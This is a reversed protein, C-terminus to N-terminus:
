EQNRSFFGALRTLDYGTPEQAVRLDFESIIALLHDFIDAQIAEYNGWDIDNSFVYIEMPLGKITPHLQRILILMDQHVKPHHRLYAEIYARFTGLNTMRRGNALVSTDIQNQDNYTAIEKRKQDIYDRLLHIRSFKELLQDDCFRISTQDILISRKIRRGGSDTMGRWNRFSDEILRYTPITTITNDWNRIKITHLALEVVAGDAEYKPIELWDGVRILDNGMIQISAIFSLITDRFVLMLVATLAGFGSLFFWPSQDILIAIVLIGTALYMILKVIQVYGKLPRRNSIPYTNYIYLAGTLLRDISTMLILYIWVSLFKQLTDGFTPLFEVGQYLILAPILQPTNKFVGQEFLIQDWDRKTQCFIFYLFRLVFHKAFLYLILGLTALGIVYLVEQIIPETLVFDWISTLELRM